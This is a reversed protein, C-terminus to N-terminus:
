SSRSRRFISFLFSCYLHGEKAHFTAVWGLGSNVTWVAFLQSADALSTAIFPFAPTFDSFVPQGSSM